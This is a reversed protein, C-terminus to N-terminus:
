SSAKVLSVKLSIKVEPHLRVPVQFEGLHVLPRELAIQHKEITIGEKRLAQVIRAATVAGHLKEQAGASVALTCTLGGLRQALEEARQRSRQASRLRAALQTQVQARASPTAPLALGQPILFNRAYGDKITLKQGAKGLRDVDTVLIVEM